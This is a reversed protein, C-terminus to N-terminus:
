KEHELMQSMSVCACLACRDGRREARERAQAKSAFHPLFNCFFTHACAHMTSITWLLTHTHTRHTAHACTQSHSGGSSTCLICALDRRPNEARAGLSRHVCNIAETTIHTNYDYSPTVERLKYQTYISLVSLGTRSYCIICRTIIRALMTARHVCVCVRARLPSDYCFASGCM